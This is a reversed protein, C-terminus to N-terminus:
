SLTRIIFRTTIRYILHFIIGCITANKYRFLCLIYNKSSVIPINKVCINTYIISFKYM